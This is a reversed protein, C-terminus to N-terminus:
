ALEWGGEVRKIKTGGAKISAAKAQEWNYVKPPSELKQKIWNHLHRVSGEYTKLQGHSTANWKRTTPFFDCSVHGERILLIAGNNRVKFYINHEKLYKMCFDIQRQKADRRRQRVKEQDEESLPYHTM